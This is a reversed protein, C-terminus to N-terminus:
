WTGRAGGKPQVAPAAATQGAELAPRHDGDHPEGPQQAALYWVPTFTFPRGPRYRPARRSGAGYVLSALVLAIAVPVGVFVLITQLPTM